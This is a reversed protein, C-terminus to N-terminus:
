GMPRGALSAIPNEGRQSQEIRTAQMRALSLLVQPDVEGKHTYVMAVVVTGVRMVMSTLPQGSTNHSGTRAVSANGVMPMSIERDNESAFTVSRSKYGAQAAEVGEYGSLAIHVNGTSNANDYQVDAYSTM